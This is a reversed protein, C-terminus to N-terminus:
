RAIQGFWRPLVGFRRAMQGISRIPRKEIFVESKEATEIRHHSEPQRQIRICVGPPAYTIIVLLLVHRHLLRVVTPPTLDHEKNFIILARGSVLIGRHVNVQNRGAPM